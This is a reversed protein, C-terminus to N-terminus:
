VGKGIPGGIHDKIASALVKPSFPKQLYGDPELDGLQDRMASEAYGSMFIVRPCQQYISILERVFVPGDMEGMMVDSIILDFHDVGMENILELADSGDPAEEIEYGRGRLAVVVFDRVSDEDEVVLIRGAGTLDTLAVSRGKASVEDEEEGAAIAPLYIKFNAGEGKQSDLYIAGGMQGIVGHVTSLGLGTGKGVDKTTFFPDFIQSAIDDSVGPGTDSVEIVVHDEEVLGAPGEKIVDDVSLHHTKITLTGGDPGMADRANVALNMIASELQNQDVRIPRLGRGNILELRVKDGVARDLFKTFDRLLETVSVKKRQMTQKRSFALLQKTLNALRLSNERILVLQEYSPDGLPHNMMLLECNGLISQLFNNFDHAVEGALNGIAKLKQDQGHDIEMRKRETIEVSFILARKTGYGGRRRGVPKVYLAFVRVNNGSGQHVEVVQSSAGVSLKRKVERALEESTESSFIRSLATNRSIEGFADIFAKNAEILKANKGFEGEVVAVGFPAETIEGSLPADDVENIEDDLTMEVCVFGEGKGGHQFPAFVADVPADENRRVKASQVNEKNTWLENVLESTEGLVVDDIHHLSGKAAGLKDRMAGNAWAIQGSKELAFVPRLYDAYATALEDHDEEDVPMERLTWSVHEDDGSIPAVSVDFRRRAGGGTIDIVQYIDETAEEGGRAARCLRFIKMAEAGQQAFLREIRPPLGSPGKAGALQALKCYAKNAFVVVGDRHTVLRADRDADLMKEALHLNHLLDLGSVHRTKNGNKQKVGGHWPWIASLMMPSGARLGIMTAAGLALIATAGLALFAAQVYQFSLIILVIVCLAGVLIGVWTGLLTIKESTQFHGREQHGDQDILSKVNQEVAREPGDHFLADNDGENLSLDGEILDAQDLLATQDQRPLAGQDMIAELSAGDSELTGAMADIGEQEEGVPVAVLESKPKIKSAASM